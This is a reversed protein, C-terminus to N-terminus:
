ENVTKRVRCLSVVHQRLTPLLETDGPQKKKCIRMLRNRQDSVWLKRKTMNSNVLLCHSNVTLLWKDRTQYLDKHTLIKKVSIGTLQPYYSVTFGFSACIQEREAHTTGGVWNGNKASLGGRKFCEQRFKEVDAATKLYVGIARAVAWLGCIPQNKVARAKKDKRMGKRAM